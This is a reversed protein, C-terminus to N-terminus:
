RSARRTRRNTVTGDAGSQRSAVVLLSPTNPPASANQAHKDGTPANPRHLPRHTRSSKLTLSETPGLAFTALQAKTHESRAAWGGWGVGGGGEGALKTVYPTRSRRGQLGGAHGLRVVRHTQLLAVVRRVEGDDADARAVGAAQRQAHRTGVGCGGLAFGEQKDNHVAGRLWWRQPATRAQLVGKANLTPPPGPHCGRRM